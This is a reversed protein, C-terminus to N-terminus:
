EKGTRSRKRFIAPSQGMIRKFVRSFHQPDDYGVEEAVSAVSTHSRLLSRAALHVRREELWRRPSQGTVARFSLRFATQSMKARRALDRISIRQTADLDQLLSKVRQNPNDAHDSVEMKIWNKVAQLLLSQVAIQENMRLSASTRGASHSIIKEFLIKWRDYNDLHQVLPTTAGGYGLWRVRPIFQTSQFTVWRDTVLMNDLPMLETQACLDFHIAMHTDSTNGWSHILNPPVLALSGKRLQIAGNAPEVWLWPNGEVVLLLEFDLLRQLPVKSPGHPNTRRHALRLWPSLPRSATHFEPVDCVVRSPLDKSLVAADLRNFQGSM